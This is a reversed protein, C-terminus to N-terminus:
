SVKGKNEGINKGTTSRVNLGDQTSKQMHHLM